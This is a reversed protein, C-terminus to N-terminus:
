TGLVIGFGINGYGVENPYPIYGAYALVFTCFQNFDEVTRKRKGQPVFIFLIGSNKSQVRLCKRDAFSVYLLCESSCILQPSWEVTSNHRNCLVFGLHVRLHTIVPLGRNLSCEAVLARECAEPM